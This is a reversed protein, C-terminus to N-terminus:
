VQLQNVISLKLNIMRFTCIVTRYGSLQTTEFVNNEELIYYRITATILNSQRKIKLSFFHKDKRIKFVAM